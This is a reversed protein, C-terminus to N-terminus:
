PTVGDIVMTTNGYEGTVDQGVLDDLMMQWRQRARDADSYREEYEFAEARCAYLYVHPAATLLWNTTTTSSLGSLKADWRGIFNDECVPAVKLSSGSIAFWIPDTAEAYPNLEILGDWTTQKLPASGTVDRVLSRMLVFGTPLTALGNADTTITGTTTRRYDPGLRTTIAAEALAIFDDTQDSTYSAVAWSSIKSTLEAYTSIAM